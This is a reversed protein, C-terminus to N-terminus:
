LMNKLADRQSRSLVKVLSELKLDSAKKSAKRAAGGKFAIYNNNNPNGGSIGGAGKKHNKAMEELQEQIMETLPIYLFYVSKVFAVPGCTFAEVGKILKDKYMEPDCLIIDAKPTQWSISGLRSITDEVDEWHKVCNDHMFRLEDMLIKLDVEKALVSDISQQEYMDSLSKEYCHHIGDMLSSKDGTESILRSRSANIKKFLEKNFSYNHEMCETIIKPDSSESCKFDKLHEAKVLSDSRGPMTLFFWSLIPNSALYFKANNYGDKDENELIALVGSVANFFNHVTKQANGEVILEKTITKINETCKDENGGTYSSTLVLGGKQKSEETEPFSDGKYEHIIFSPKNTKKDYIIVSKSSSSLHLAVDVPSKLVRSGTQMTHFAVDKVPKKFDSIEYSGKIILSRLNEVAVEDKDEDIMKSLKEILKGNPMLFTNLYRTSRFTGDLCLDSIIDYLKPSERRILSLLCIYKDKGGAFM